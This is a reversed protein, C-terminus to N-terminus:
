TLAVEIATSPATGFSAADVTFTPSIASATSLEHQVHQSSVEWQVSGNVTDFMSTPDFHVMGDVSTRVIWIDAFTNQAPDPTETQGFAAFGTPMAVVGTLEDDQAGIYSKAWLPMGGADIRLLWGDQGGQMGTIGSVVYGGDVATMGTAYAYESTLEDGSRDLYTSSWLMSDDPGLAVVWPGHGDGTTQGSVAYSGDPQVAVAAATDMLPGGIGYAGALTGDGHVRVILADWDDHAADPDEFFTKGVVLLDGGPAVAIATVDIDPHDPGPDIETAWLVGGADDVEVLMAAESGDPHRVHGALVVGNTTAVSASWLGSQVDDFTINEAWQPTDDPEFGEVRIGGGGRSGATVLEGSAARSMADIAILPTSEQRQSTVNGLGDLTSMWPTGADEAIVLSDGDAVLGGLDDDNFISFARSWRTSVDALPGADRAHDIDFQRRPFLSRLTNPPEPAGALDPNSWGYKLGAIGDLDWWPGPGDLDVDLVAGLGAALVPGGVPIGNIALMFTVSVDLEVTAQFALASAMDPLGIEPRFSPPEISSASPRGGLKSLAASVDFPAVVSVAAGAEAHGSFRVDVGLYPIVSAPGAQFEALPLTLVELTGELDGATEAALELTLAGRLGLDSDFAVLQQNEDFTPAIDTGAWTLALNGNAVVRADGAEGLVVDDIPVYAGDQFTGVDVPLAGLASAPSSEVAAMTAGMALLPALALTPWRHRHRANM